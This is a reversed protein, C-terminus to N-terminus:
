QNLFNYIQKFGAAKIRVMIREEVESTLAYIFPKPRTRRVSFSEIRLNNLKAEDCNLNKLIIECAEIGNMIPMSIDLIIVSYYNQPKSLYREVASQGNTVTDVFQFHKLLTEKFAELLFLDDNALLCRSVQM